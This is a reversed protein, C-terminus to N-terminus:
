SREPVARIVSQGTRGSAPPYVHLGKLSWENQSQEKLRDAEREWGLGCCQAFSIGPTQAEGLQARLAEEGQLTGM